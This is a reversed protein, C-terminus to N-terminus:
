FAPLCVRHCLHAPARRRDHHALRARHQLIAVHRACRRRCREDARPRPRCACCWRDASSCQPARFHACASLLLHLPETESSHLALPIFLAYLATLAARTSPALCPVKGARQMAVGEHAQACSCSLDRIAALTIYVAVQTTRSPGPRPQPLAQPHHRCQRRRRMLLATVTVARLRM